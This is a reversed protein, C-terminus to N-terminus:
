TCPFIMLGKDCALLRGCTLFQITDPFSFFDGTAMKTAPDCQHPSILAVAFHM